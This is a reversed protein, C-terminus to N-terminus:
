PVPRLLAEKAYHDSVLEATPSGPLSLSDDTYLRASVPEFGVALIWDITPRRPDVAGAAMDRLPAFLDRVAADATAAASAADGTARVNLDGALIVPGAERARHVRRLLTRAQALRLPPEGSLHTNFVTLERGTLQDALRAMSWMRLELYQRHNLPARRRLARWVAGALARAQSLLFYRSRRSLMTYRDPIVLANGQGPRQIRVLTFRAEADAAVEDLARAQESGVEQLALIAAGPQGEFVERYFPLTLFDRQATKIKSNGVATNFTIVRLPAPSGVM